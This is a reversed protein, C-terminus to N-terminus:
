TKKRAKTSSRTSSSSSSKEEKEKEYTTKRKSGAAQLTSPTRASAGIGLGVVSGMMVHARATIWLTKAVKQPTWGIRDGYEQCKIRCQLYVNITYTRKPLFCDIVEDYMYCFHDPRVWSLIVSATAPGVGRLKTIAKIAKQTYESIKDDDQKESLSSSSPIQKAFSIGSQTAKEVDQDTNSRLQGLLANRPKGLTFKWPIVIELLDKKSIKTKTGNSLEEALHGAKSDLDSLGSIQGIIEDNYRSYIGEWVTKEQSELLQISAELVGPRKKSMTNSLRSRCRIFNKQSLTTSTCEKSIEEQISYVRLRGIKSM